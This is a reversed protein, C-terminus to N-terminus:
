ARLSEVVEGVVRTWNKKHQQELACALELIRANSEVLEGDPAAATAVYINIREPLLQHTNFKVWAPNKNKVGTHKFTDKAKTIFGTAALQEGFFEMLSHNQALGDAITNIWTKREGPVTFMLQGQEDACEKGVYKVLLLFISLARLFAKPQGRFPVATFEGGNM